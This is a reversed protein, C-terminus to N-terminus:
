LTEDTLSSIIDEVCRQYGKCYEEIGDYKEELVAEQRPEDKGIKQVTRVIEARQEALAQALIKKFMIKSDGFESCTEPLAIPKVFFPNDKYGKLQEHREEMFDQLENEWKGRNLKPQEDTM